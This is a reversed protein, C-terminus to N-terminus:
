EKNCIFTNNSTKVKEFRSSDSVLPCASLCFNFFQTIVKTMYDRIDSQKMKKAMKSLRFVSISFNSNKEKRVIQFVFHLLKM